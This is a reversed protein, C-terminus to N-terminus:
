ELSADPQSAYTSPRPFWNDIEWGPLGKRSVRNPSVSPACTWLRIIEFPPTRRTAHRHVLSLVYIYIYIYTLIMMMM